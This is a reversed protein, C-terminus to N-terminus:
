LFFFVVMEAASTASAAASCWTALLDGNPLKVAREYFCKDDIVNGFFGTGAADMAAAPLVFFSAILILSLVVAVIHKYTRKM